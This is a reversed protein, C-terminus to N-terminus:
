VKSTNDEKGMVQRFESAGFPKRKALVLPRELDNRVEGERICHIGNVVTERSVREEKPELSMGPAENGEERGLCMRQRMRM